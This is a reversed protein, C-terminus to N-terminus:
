KEGKRGLVKVCKLKGESVRAMIRQGGYRPERGSEWRECEDIVLPFVVGVGGCIAGLMAVEMDGRGSANVMGYPVGEADFFMGMGREGGGGVYRVVGGSAVEVWEEVRRESEERIERCREVIGRAEAIRAGLVRVDIVDIDGEVEGEIVEGCRPCVVRPMRVGVGGVIKAECERMVARERAEVQSLTMGLGEYREIGGIEGEGVGSVVGLLKRAEAGEVYSRGILADGSVMWRVMDESVGLERWLWVGYEGGGAAVGYKSKGKEDREGWRVVEVVEGGNVRVGVSVSVRCRGEVGRPYIGWHKGHVGDVYGSMCWRYGALVTSKGVGNGGEVWVDKGGISMDVDLGRFGSMRVWEVRLEKVQEKEMDM